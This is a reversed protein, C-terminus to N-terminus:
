GAGAQYRLWYREIARDAAERDGTALLDLLMGRSVAIALRAEAAADAGTFGLREFLAVLPPVWAEIVEPLFGPEHERLARAYLEFFLREHPWLAPDAFRSWMTRAIVLPDADPADLMAIFDDRQQQEVTRSVESLLGQRSGFHYTLMRHSSGIAAAIQRLSADHLGDAAAHELVLALLRAKAPPTADM